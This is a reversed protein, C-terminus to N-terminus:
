PIVFEPIMVFEPIKYTM